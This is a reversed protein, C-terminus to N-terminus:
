LNSKIRDQIQKRITDADDGHTSITVKSDTAGLQEIDIKVTDQRATKASVKGESRDGSSEIDTMKLQEVAKRAAPTVKDPTAKFTMVYKGQGSMADGTKSVDKGLGRWTGCGTLLLAGVALSLLTVSLVAHALSKM